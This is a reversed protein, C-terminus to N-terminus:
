ARVGLTAALWAFQHEQHFAQGGEHKNFPYVAIETAPRREALAAYHNYAAFVTSPPCTDDRLGVSFLAPATARRAFSVGDHYALTRFVAEEHDRHVSLYRVIEQYPLSDTVDIARRYHTLFPVDAMVAALGDVLGAAALALGGGQSGGSVVVRAPDVGPVARVADVARVVDTMVRRYYYGAPDLIGRTLFGPYSPASGVPDPTEGGVSWASGQGRVDMVLHVYGAAAWALWEVPRGRGGGYGLYGVVAPSPRGADESGVPRLLWAKIPHGGFGAFTVDFVDVLPLGADVPALTLGLDFARAEALTSSWFDDFDAPEDIEPLYRELEPLPLDFIPVTRGPERPEEPLAPADHADEPTPLVFSPTTATM